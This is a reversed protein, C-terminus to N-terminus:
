DVDLFQFVIECSLHLKLLMFCSRPNFPWCLAM